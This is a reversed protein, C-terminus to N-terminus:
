PVTKVETEEFQVAPLSPLKVRDFEPSSEDRHVDEKAIMLSMYINPLTHINLQIGKGGAAKQVSLDMGFEKDDLINIAPLAHSHEHHNKRSTTMTTNSMTVRHHNNNDLIPFNQSTRSSSLRNLGLSGRRRSFKIEYVDEISDEASIPSYKTPSGNMSSNLSQQSEDEMDWTSGSNLDEPIQDLLSVSGSADDDDGRRQYLSQHDFVLTETRLCSTLIM